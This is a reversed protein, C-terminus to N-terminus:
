VCLVDFDIDDEDDFFVSLDFTSKHQVLNHSKDVAAEFSSLPILKQTTCNSKCYQSRSKNVLGKNSLFSPELKVTGHPYFDEKIKHQRDDDKDKCPDVGIIQLQMVQCSDVQKNEMM